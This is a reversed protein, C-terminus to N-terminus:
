FPMGANILFPVSNTTTASFQVAAAVLAKDATSNNQSWKIVGYGTTLLSRNGIWFCGSSHANLTFTLTSTPNNDSYNLLASCDEKNEKIYGTTSSGDDKILTGDAKYLTLTVSVPQDTINSINICNTVDSNTYFINLYASGSATEYTSAFSSVGFVCTCLVIVLITLVIRNKM